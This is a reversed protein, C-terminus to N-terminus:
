DWVHGLSVRHGAQIRFYSLGQDLADILLNLPKPGYAHPSRLPCLFSDECQKFDLDQSGFGGCKDSDGRGMPLNRAAADGCGFFTVLTVHIYLYM